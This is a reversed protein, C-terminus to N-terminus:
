VMALAARLDLAADSGGLERCLLPTSAFARGGFVIRPCATVFKEQIAKVLRVVKPLSFLITASIGVTEARQDEIAQLIGSHPMNTGLFRVEWGRAELVDAVMNPGVQHLEGEIGTIVMSGAQTKAPEIYQYLQAMAYQTIATAMHEEAVTIQNTEWLRGVEYQSAQFVDVYVDVIDSARKLAELALSVAARREGKIAAQLYLAQTEGLITAARAPATQPNECASVAAAIFEKVFDAEAANLSPQLAAGVQELNEAVFHSAINRSGLMGVTWRAYAEFPAVSGSEIASALYSQHFIADEIGHKRGREGYRNLWDPHRVFFEETVAAAVQPKLGEIKESLAIRDNLTMTTM